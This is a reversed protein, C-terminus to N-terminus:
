ESFVLRKQRKKNQDRILLVHQALQRANILFNRPFINKIQLLLDFSDICLADM